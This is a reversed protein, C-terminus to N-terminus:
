EGGREGTSVLRLDGDTDIAVPSDVAVTGVTRDDVQLSVAGEDREVALALRNDPLIWRKTQTIFPAVPVVAVAPLEASLLPAGAASAYGHTGQPTAIVVGDARFQALEEGRSSLSYESIRAPEETLLAVDFLARESFADTEVRLVPRREIRCDGELAARVTAPLGEVPTSPLGDADAAIVPADLGTRVIESLAREDPCVVVSPSRDRLETPSAVIPRGGADEAAESLAELDLLTDGNEREVVGVDGVVDDDTRGTSGM